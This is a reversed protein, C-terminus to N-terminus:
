IFGDGLDKKGIKKYYLKLIFIVNRALIKINMM